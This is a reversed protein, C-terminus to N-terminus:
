IYEDSKVEECMKKLKDLGYKSIYNIGHRIWKNWDMGHNTNFEM